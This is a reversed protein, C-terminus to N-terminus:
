PRIGAEFLRKELSEVRRRLEEFPSEEVTHRPKQAEPQPQSSLAAEVMREAKAFDGPKSRDLAKDLASFLLGRIDDLGREHATVMVKAVSSRLGDFRGELAALETEAAEARALATDREAQENARCEDAIIQNRACEDGYRRAEELERKLQDRQNALNQSETEWRVAEAETQEMERRLRQQDAEYQAQDSNQWRRELREIEQRLAAERTTILNLVYDVQRPHELDTNRSGPAYLGRMVAERTPLEVSEPGAPQPPQRKALIENLATYLPRRKVDWEHWAVNWEDQTVEFVPAIPATAHQRLYHFVVDVEENLFRCSSLKAAVQGRDPLAPAEMAAFASQIGRRVQGLYNGSTNGWMAVCAAEAMKDTVEFRSM